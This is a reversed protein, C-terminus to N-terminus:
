VLVCCVENDTCDVTERQLSQACEKMCTGGHHRCHTRFESKVVSCCSTGQQHCLLSNDKILVDCKEPTICNEEACIERANSLEAYLLVTALVVFVLTYSKM